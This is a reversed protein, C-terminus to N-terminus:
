GGWPFQVQEAMESQKAVSFDCKIKGTKNPFGNNLTTPQPFPTHLIKGFLYITSEFRRGQRQLALAIVLVSGCLMLM